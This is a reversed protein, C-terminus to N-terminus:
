KVRGRRKPLFALLLDRNPRYNRGVKRLLQMAVLANIDRTLTKEGKSAYDGAVRPSILPIEGRSILRHPLALILHKQRTAAATTKNRFQDHVYNVWIVQWQFRRIQNLQGALGDVFGEVAYEVFPIVGVNGKSSRDLEAYYRTRTKNYHNSLLHAAPLPVGSQTLILFELLRATRGNGDGFPHIWAIYLHAVISKFLAFAFRLNDDPPIMEDNLWTCLRELLYPCNEWPAGRYTGVGVSVKRVVGPEIEEAVELGQLIRKNYQCILEPTIRIAEDDDVQQAIQNCIGVVNRVEDALYKQSRPLTLKGEVVQRVQQITLTNGEISTTAHVGKSLYIAQLRSQMAPSLAVGAIHQCKSQAEGIKMWLTYPAATLDLQFNIWPHSAPLTRKM